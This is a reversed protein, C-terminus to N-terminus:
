LGKVRVEVESSVLEPLDLLGITFRSDTSGVSPTLPTM